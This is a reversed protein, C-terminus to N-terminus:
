EVRIRDVAVCIDRLEKKTIPKFEFRSYRTTLRLWHPGDEAPVRPPLRFSQETFSEDMRPVIQGIRKGDWWVSVRQRPMGDPYRCCLSLTLTTPAQKACLFMADARKGNIWRVNKKGWVENEFTWGAGLFTLAREEGALFEVPLPAQQAKWQVALPKYRLLHKFAKDADCEAMVLGPPLPRPLSPNMSYLIKENGGVYDSHALCWVKGSKPLGALVRAISQIEVTPPAKPIYRERYFDYIYGFERDTFVAKVSASQKALNKMVPRLNARYVARSRLPAIAAFALLVALAAAVQATWRRSFRMMGLLDAIGKGALILIPPAYSLHYRSLVWHNQATYLLLQITQAVFAWFILFLTASARGRMGRWAGFLALAMIPCAAYWVVCRDNGFSIWGIVQGITEWGGPLGAGGDQPLLWFIPILFPVTLAHGWLALALPSAPRAGPNRELKWRRALLLCLLGIAQVLFLAAAFYLTWCALSLWLVVLAVRWRRPDRLLAIVSDLALLSFLLSMAYPRAEQAYTILLPSSAALATALLAASTQRFLALSLRWFVWLTLVGALCSPFRLAWETYSVRAVLFEVVYFFPPKNPPVWAMMQSWTPQVASIAQTVEDHWFSTAGLGQLRLICGVLLVFFLAVRDATSLRPASLPAPQPQISAISM